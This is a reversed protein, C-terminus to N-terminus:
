KVVKGLLSMVDTTNRVMQEPFVVTIADTPCITQCLGCYPADILV